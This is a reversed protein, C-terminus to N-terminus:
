LLLMAVFSVVVINLVDFTQVFGAPLDAGNPRVLESLVLALLITAVLGCFGPSARAPPDFVVARAARVAVM